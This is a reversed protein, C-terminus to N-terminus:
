LSSIQFRLALRPAVIALSTAPFQLVSESFLFAPPIPASCVPSGPLTHCYMALCYSLLRLTFCIIVVLALCPLFPYLFYVSPLFMTRCFIRTVALIGFVPCGYHKQIPHSFTAKRSWPMALLPWWVIQWCAVPQVCGCTWSAMSLSQTFWASQAQKVLCRALLSQRWVQAFVSTLFCSFSFHAYKMFRNNSNAM